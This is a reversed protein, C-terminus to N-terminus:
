PLLIINLRLNKLWLSQLVDFGGLLNNSLKVFNVPFGLYKAIGNVFCTPNRHRRYLKIQDPQFLHESPCTLEQIPPTYPYVFISM